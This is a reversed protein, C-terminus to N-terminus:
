LNVERYEDDAPKAALEAHIENLERARAREDYTAIAGMLGGAAWAGAGFWLLPDGYRLAFAVTALAALVLFILPKYSPLPTPHAASSAM